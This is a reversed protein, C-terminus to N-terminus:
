RRRLFWWGALLLLGIVVVSTAVRFVWSLVDLLGIIVLIVVIAGTVLPWIPPREPRDTM